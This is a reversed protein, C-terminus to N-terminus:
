NKVWKHESVIKRIRVVQTRNKNEFVCKKFLGKKFPIKGRWNWQYFKRETKCFVKEAWPYFREVQLKSFQTCMKM